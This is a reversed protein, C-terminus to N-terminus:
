RISSFDFLSFLFSLWISLFLSNGLYRVNSLIKLLMQRNNRQEMTFQESISTAVNKYETPIKTVRLTADRHAQSVDHSQFGDKTMAKKWNSFGTSTFASEAKKPSIPNSFHDKVCIFCFAADSCSDYHLWQYKEFWSSQFRRQRGGILRQPFDYNKPQFPGTLTRLRGILANTSSHTVNETSPSTNIQQQSNDSHEAPETSNQANESTEM